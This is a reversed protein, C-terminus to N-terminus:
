DGIGPPNLDFRVWTSAVPEETQTVQDDIPGGGSGFSNDRITRPPPAVLKAVLVSINSRERRKISTSARTPAPIGTRPDIQVPKLIYRQQAPADEEVGLRARGMGGAPGAILASI